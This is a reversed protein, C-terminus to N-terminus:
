VYSTIEFLSDIPFRIAISTKNKQTIVSCQTGSSNWILVAKCRAAHLTNKQLTMLIANVM